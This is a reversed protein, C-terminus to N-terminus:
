RRGRIAGWILLVGIAGVVLGLFIFSMLGPDMTRHSLEMSGFILACLGPLLLIIGIAVMIATACGSREAPPPVRPPEPAISM